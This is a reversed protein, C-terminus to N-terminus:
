SLQMELRIKNSDQLKNKQLFKKHFIETNIRTKDM